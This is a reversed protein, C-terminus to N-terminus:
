QSSDYMSQHWINCVSEQLDKKSEGKDAGRVRQMEAPSTIIPAPCAVLCGAEDALADDPRYQTVKNM